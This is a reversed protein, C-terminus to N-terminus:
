QQLDKIKYLTIRSSYHNRKISIVPPTDALITLMSSIMQIRASIKVTYRTVDPNAICKRNCGHRDNEDTIYTHRKNHDTVDKNESRM